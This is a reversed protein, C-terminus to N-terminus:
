SSAPAVDSDAPPNITVPQDYNSLAASVNVTGQDGMNATVALKAPRLDNKQVWVDVTGSGNAAASGLGSTVGGLQDATLNMSVHYCDKDGCKEDAQKTPAVGPQNLFKTLEDIVKTPDSAAGAADSPSNVTKTYKPGLLSVKTYTSDNDVIVDGTVGLLAPAGFSLHAKKNAVDVDGEATTGKLDLAGPSGTGSLDMKIQGAVDAKVHFSKVDKLTAVSKALIEKPDTLAPAAPAASNCAGVVVVAATALFLLRRFMSLRDELSIVPLASPANTTRSRGAGDSAYTASPM